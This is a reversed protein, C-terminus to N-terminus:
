DDDDRQSRLYNQTFLVRGVEDLNHASGGRIIPAVAAFKDIIADNYRAHIQEYEPGTVIRPLRPAEISARRSSSLGDRRLSDRKVGRADAIAALLEHKPAQGPDTLALTVIETWERSRPTGRTRTASGHEILLARLQQCYANLQDDEWDDQERWATEAFGYLLEADPDALTPDGAIEYPGDDPEATVLWAPRTFGRAILHGTTTADASQESM